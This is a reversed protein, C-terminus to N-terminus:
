EAFEWDALLIWGLHELKIRTLALNGTPHDAWVAECIGTITTNDRTLTYSSGLHIDNAYKIKM